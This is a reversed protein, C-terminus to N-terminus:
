LAGIGRGRYLLYVFFPAGMAAFLIGIPLEAPAAVTRALTDAAVILIAGLLMSGPLLSRHEPGTLLRVLHPVILGVFAIIGATAVATGVALAALLVIALKVRETHFGLHRAEAEGLLMADLARSQLPAAILVLGIWPATTALERWSAGGLSGLTWFTLDRLENDDAIYQLFGLGAITLAQVAVGALLMIAVDTRGARTGLRYVLLTVLAGGAFAAAPVAVGGLPVFVRALEAQLVIAFGAGLAAGGSVGILGPEALPNRFLGQLAAGAVAMGAGVLSGQVIRPLRISLVVTEAVTQGEVLDALGLASAVIRLVDAAPISLAGSGLALVWTVPLLAALLAIRARPGAAVRAGLAGFRGPLASAHTAM